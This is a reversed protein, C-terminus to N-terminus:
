SNSMSRRLATPWPSCIRVGPFVEDRLFDYGLKRRETADWKFIPDLIDWYQGLETKLAKYHLAEEPNLQGAYSQLAADMERRVQQLSSRYADARETEPELLYDRVYTGSLYVQSRIDNLVHNRFLFERRIRAESTRFNQLVRLADLGALAMIILLSGFGVALAVRSGLLLREHGRGGSTPKSAGM